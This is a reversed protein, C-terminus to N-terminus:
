QRSEMVVGDKYTWLYTTQTRGESKTCVVQIANGVQKPNSAGNGCTFSGSWGGEDKKNIPIQKAVSVSGDKKIRLFDDFEWDCSSGSCSSTVLVIDDGDIRFKKVISALDFGGVGPIPRGNLSIAAQGGSHSFEGGNVPLIGGITKMSKLDPENYSDAEDASQASQSGATSIPAKTQAVGSDVHTKGCGALAFVIISALFTLKKM